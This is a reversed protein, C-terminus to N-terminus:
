VVSKRDQQRFQNVTYLHINQDRHIVATRGAIYAAGLGIIAMMAVSVLVEILTIGQQHARHQTKRYPVQQM